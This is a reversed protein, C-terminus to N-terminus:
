EDSADDENASSGDLLRAVLDDIHPAIGSETLADRILKRARRFKVSAPLEFAAAIREAEAAAAALENHLPQSSDFRPIPLNFMVKDFHRAGWQGRAQMAAVRARSTESNLIASLYHAEAENRPAAWYLMHDIISEDRIICAAPLTGAKAYVVRLPPIPFQAGLENHYNWRDILKMSGSEANANWIAEAASMWGHLGTYGRSAAAEADLVAGQAMIPVVGEFPRWVRYPLISEGLLIPHLFEAEVRHEVGPLMKWPKKEQNNRRSIVFPATPDEGLRGLTKREVLCLMRPVLTAGQRFSKRYASGGTFQGEAPKPANERVTLAVDAMVESADRMPLQGSYARVTDPVAKATARRRGFLACSPVPFLPQVDDDMTWAEDWAIRTSHFSGKRLKEFQGRTLAALPLVFAIRGGSRLYLSVARVTFLAALDNQTAFKGGV